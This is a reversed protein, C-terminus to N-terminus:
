FSIKWELLNLGVSSDAWSKRVSSCRCARSAFRSMLCLGASPPRGATAASTRAFSRVRRTRSDKLLPM